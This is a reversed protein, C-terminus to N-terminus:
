GGLGLALALRGTEEPSPPGAYGPQHIVVFTQKSPLTYTVARRGSASWPVNLVSGEGLGLAAAAREWPKGFAFVYELDIEQLPAWVFTHLMQQPPRMAATVATSHWPYLEVTLLQEAQVDPQQLLTQAFRLRSRHYRNPGMCEEWAASSYPAATAWRSYSSAAVQQTFIGDPGQFEHVARGPNLGLLVMAPSDGALPGLYPEPFADLVVEGRGSGKYSSFWGELEGPVARDGNIWRRLLDDWFRATELRATVEAANCSGGVYRAADQRDGLAFVSALRARGRGPDPKKM